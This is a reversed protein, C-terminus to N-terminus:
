HRQRVEVMPRNSALRKSSAPPHLGMRSVEAAHAHMSCKRYGAEAEIAFYSAGRHDGQGVLMEAMFHHAEALYPRMRLEFCLSISETLAAEADARSDSEARCLALGLV